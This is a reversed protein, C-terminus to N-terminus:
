IESHLSVASPCSPMASPVCDTLGRLVTWGRPLGMLWEVFTPNLRLRSTPTNPSSAAGHMEVRLVQHGLPPSHTPSQNPKDSKWDRAAPTAWRTAAITLPTGAGNGNYGKEIMRKKREEFSELNEGDNMLQADPTPWCSSESGGIHHGSKLMPRVYLKGSRMSGSTPWDVLCDDLGMGPFSAESTKWSSLVRDWKALSVFSLTSSIAITKAESNSAQLPTRVVHSGGLSSIWKDVGRQATSPECIRSCLLKIWSGPKARRQWSKAPSPKGRWTASRELMQFREDSEWTLAVSAPASPSATSIIWM